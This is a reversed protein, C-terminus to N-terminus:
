GTDYPGTGGTVTGFTTDWRDRDRDWRYCGWLDYGVQREGEGEQLQGVLRIGGLETGGTVTECTTDWRDRDRDWMETDWRDRDRDLRNRKGM